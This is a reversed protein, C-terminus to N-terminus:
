RHGNVWAVGAYPRSPDKSKSGTAKLAEHLFVQYEPAQVAKYVLSPNTTCDALVASCSDLVSPM